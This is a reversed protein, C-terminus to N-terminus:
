DDEEVYGYVEGSLIQSVMSQTIEYEDAIERQLWGEQCYLRRIRRIDDVDFGDCRDIGRTTAEKDGEEYSARVNASQSDVKLHSSNVCEPNHCIHTVVEKRGSPLEEDELLLLAARHALETTNGIKFVGYGGKPETYATWEWCGSEEDVEFKELFREELELRDETGKTPIENM